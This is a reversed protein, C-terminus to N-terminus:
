PPCTHAGCDRDAVGGCRRSQCRLRNAQVFRAAEEVWGFPCRRAVAGERLVRETTKPEDSRRPSEPQMEVLNGHLDTIFLTDQAM